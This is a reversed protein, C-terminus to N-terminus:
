DKNISEMEEKSLGTIEIIDEINMKKKLMAKVIESNRESKGEEIGCAKASAMERLGSERMEALRRTAEDSSLYELEKDAKKINDNKKMVEGIRKEDGDIFSLWQSVKDNADIKSKRFKPLEIYYFTKVKNIVEERHKDAVMVGKTIYEDFKFYEFDLIAVVIVPNIKKYDEKPKLSFAIMKSAYYETREVINKHDTLQIEINVEVNGNLRAKVDLVGYKEEKLNQDLRKDHEIEIEKIDMELLNSLFEKLYKENGKKTFLRKFVYDNKVSLKNYVQTIKLVVM